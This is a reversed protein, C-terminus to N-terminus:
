RTGSKQQKIIKNEEWDGNLCREWKIPLMRKLIIMIQRLMYM